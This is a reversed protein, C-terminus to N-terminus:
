RSEMCTLRGVRVGPTGKPEPWPVPPEDTRWTLTRRAQKDDGM